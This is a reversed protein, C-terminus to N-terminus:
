HVKFTKSNPFEKCGFNIDPFFMRIKDIKDNDIDYVLLDDPRNKFYEMVDKHHDDWELLWIPLACTQVGTM